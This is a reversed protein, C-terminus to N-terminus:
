PAIDAQIDPAQRCVPDCDAGNPRSERYVPQASGGGVVADDRRVVFDFSVPVDRYFVFGDISQPQNPGCPSITLRWNAPAGSCAPQTGCTHPLAIQCTSPVGDAVVEIQYRGPKATAGTLWVRLSDACGILTCDKSSCGQMCIVSLLSSLAVWRLM